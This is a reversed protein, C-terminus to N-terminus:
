YHRLVCLLLAKFFCSFFVLHKWLNRISKWVQCPTAMCYLLFYHIYTMIASRCIVGFHIKSPTHIVCNCSKCCKHHPINHQVETISMHSYTHAQNHRASAKFLWQCFSLWLDLLLRPFVFANITLLFTKNHQSNIIHQPHLIHSSCVALMDSVFVRQSLRRYACVLLHAFIIVM